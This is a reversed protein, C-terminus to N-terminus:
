PLPNVDAYVRLLWAGTFLPGLWLIAVVLLTTWSMVLLDKRDRVLRLTGLIGGGVIWLFISAGAPNYLLARFVRGRAAWVWSRTMGCQPCPIGHAIEFECPGGFPVTGLVMLQEGDGPGVLFAATLVFAAATLLLGPWMRWSMMALGVQDLWSELRALV